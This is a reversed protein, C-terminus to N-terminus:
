KLNLKAWKSNQIKKKELGFFALFLNKWNGHSYLIKWSLKSVNQEEKNRQSSNTLKEKLIELVRPFGRDTSWGSSQPVAWNLPPCVVQLMWPLGRRCSQVPVILHVPSTLVALQTSSAQSPSCWVQPLLEMPLTSSSPLCEWHSLHLLRESLVLHCHSQLCEEFLLQSLWGPLLPLPLQKWEPLFRLPCLITRSNWNSSSSHHLVRPHGYSM